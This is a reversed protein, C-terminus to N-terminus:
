RRNGEAKGKSPKDAGNQPNNKSTNGQFPLRLDRQFIVIM